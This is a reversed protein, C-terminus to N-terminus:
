EKLFKKAKLVRSTSISFNQFYVIEKPKEDWVLALQYKGDPDDDSFKYEFAFSDGNTIKQEHVTKGKGTTRDLLFATFGYTDAPKLGTVTLNCVLADDNFFNYSRDVTGKTVKPVSFLCQREVPPNTEEGGYGFTVSTFFSADDYGFSHDPIFDIGYSDVDDEVRASKEAIVKGNVDKVDVIIRCGHIDLGSDNMLTALVRYTKGLYMTDGQKVSLVVGNKIRDQQRLFYSKYTEGGKMAYWPAFTSEDVLALMSDMKGRAERYSLHGSELEHVFADAKSRFDAETKDLRGALIDKPFFVCVTDQNSNVVSYYKVKGSNVNFTPRVFKEIETADVEGSLLITDGVEYRQRVFQVGRDVLAALASTEADSKSPGSASCFLYSDDHRMKADLLEWQAQLSNLLNGQGPLEISQGWVSRRARTIALSLLELKGCDDSSAYADLIKLIEKKEEASRKESFSEWAKKDLVAHVVSGINKKYPEEIYKVLATDIEIDMSELAQEEYSGSTSLGDDTTKVMSSKHVLRVTDMDGLLKSFAEKRALTSDQEPNGTNSEGSGIYYADKPYLTSDFAPKPTACSVLALISLAILIITFIGRRGAM